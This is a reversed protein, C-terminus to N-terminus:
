PTIEVMFVLLVPADLPMEPNTYIMRTHRGRPGFVDNILDSAGNLAQPHDHFGTGVQM